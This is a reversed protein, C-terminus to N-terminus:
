RFHVSFLAGRGGAAETVTLTAGHVTAIDRVIALGLGSGTTQDDLRVYRSFVQERKHPPIGPGNDEVSLWGGEGDPRCAVTVTGRPPTYRIANDILNDILDRLLFRDGVITVPQLDFGLDIAKLTAQDVFSQIAVEVLADLAVPELRTKEFHGPEARALALLQNTKRIMRETASLMLKLSQATEPEAHRAGLWELQTKLGALPTRLQHAVNALFEQRARAGQSVKDLLGNFASVVPELEYPVQAAAIPELDDGDRANLGARLRNLPLLGNGVSFWILGVCSLALLSELLVLARVVAQRVQTRKRLTKAVGITAQLPAGTAAPLSLRLAVGRVAEDRVASDFAATPKNASTAGDPAAPLPPFDADGAITHGAQDRVVFYVADTDDSRLVQEAQRPLDIRLQGGDAGLRAGLAAAAGSLGQDFALQAPLWALMYTLAGGALNILLIPGILWKLLRLRISNM